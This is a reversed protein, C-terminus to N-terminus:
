IHILSLKLVIGASPTTTSTTSSTTTTTVTPDCISPETDCPAAVCDNGQFVKGTDKKNGTCRMCLKTGSGFKAQANVTGQTGNDLLSFGVNSKITIQLHGNKIQASNKTTKSKYKWLTHKKNSTWGSGGPLIACFDDTASYIHLAAGASDPAVADSFLVTPDKSLVMVSRKEPHTANDKIVMKKTTIDKAIALAACLTGCAVLAAGVLRMRSM